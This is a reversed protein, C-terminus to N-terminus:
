QRATTAGPVVPAVPNAPPAEAHHAEATARMADLEAQLEAERKAKAAIDDELKKREQLANYGALAQTAVQQARALSEKALNMRAEDRAKYAADLEEIWKDLEARAEKLNKATEEEVRSAEDIDAEAAGKALGAKYANDIREPITLNPNYAARMAALADADVIKREADRLLDNLRTAQDYAAGSVNQSEDKYDRIFGATEGDFNKNTCSSLALAGAVFLPFIALRTM